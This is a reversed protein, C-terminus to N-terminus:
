DDDDDEDEDDSSKKSKGKKAKKDSKAPKEAKDKKKGKKKPAEDEDDDEDKGSKIQDIVEKLESKSNWGYAKGAKEIGKNRLQVRVSAPKIGLEDAIDEVGYKFERETAKEAKADVKKEKKDKKAM